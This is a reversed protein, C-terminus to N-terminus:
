EPLPGAVATIAQAPKVDDGPQFRVVTPARPHLGPQNVITLEVPLVPASWASVSFEVLYSADVESAIRHAAAALLDDDGHWNVVFTEGGTEGAARGIGGRITAM